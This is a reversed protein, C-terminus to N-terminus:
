QGLVSDWIRNWTGVVWSTMGRWKWSQLPQQFTQHNHTPQALIGISSPPCLWKEFVIKVLGWLCIELGVLSFAWEPGEQKKRCELRHLFVTWAPIFQRASFLANPRSATLRKHMETPVMLQSRFHYNAYAFHRQHDPSSSFGQHAVDWARKSNETPTPWDLSILNMFWNQKTVKSYMLRKKCM